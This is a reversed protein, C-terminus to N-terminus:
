KGMTVTRAMLARVTSVVELNNQYHRSAEMMEVMEEDVSIAAEYIFGEENALPHDPSYVATAERELAVVDTVDVTALGTDGIKDAYEAAFVARMPRFAGEPTSSVSSANALNSSITNLRTMQASMARGAVDFVNRIDSMM